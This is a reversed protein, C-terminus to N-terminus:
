RSSTTGISLMKVNLLLLLKDPPLGPFDDMNPKQSKQIQREVYDDVIQGNTQILNTAREILSADDRDSHHRNMMGIIGRLGLTGIAIMFESDDKSIPNVKRDIGKAGQDILTIMTSLGKNDFSLKFGDWWPREETRKRNRINVHDSQILNIM